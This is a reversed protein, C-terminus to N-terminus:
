VFGVFLWFCLVLVWVGLGVFLDGLVFVVGGVGVGGGGLSGFGGFWLCGGGEGVFLLGVGCGGVGGWGGGCLGGCGGGGVV